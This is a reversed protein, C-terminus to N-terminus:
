GGGIRARLAAAREAPALLPCNSCIAGPVAKVYLCCTAREYVVARRRDDGVVTVVGLGRLRSGRRELLDRAARAAGAVDGTLDGVVRAVGAVDTALDGRLGRRGLRWRRGVAAHLEDLNDGLLRGEWWAALDDATTFGGAGVTGAVRSLFSVEGPHHGHARVAVNPGAPDPALKELLLPGLSAAVVSWGWLYCVRAAAVRARIAPSRDPPFSAATSAM